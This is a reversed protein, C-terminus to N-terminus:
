NKLGIQRGQVPQYTHENGAKGVRQALSCDSLLSVSASYPINARCCLDNSAETACMESGPVGRCKVSQVQRTCSRRSVLDPEPLPQSLRLTQLPPLIPPQPLPSFYQPRTCDVNSSLSIVAFGETLNGSYRQLQSIPSCCGTCPGKRRAPWYNAATRLYALLCSGEM